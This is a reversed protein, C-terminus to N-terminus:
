RVEHETEVRACGRGREFVDFLGDRHVSPGVQTARVIRGRREFHRDGKREM